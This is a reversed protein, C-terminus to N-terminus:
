KYAMFTAYHNYKWVCEVKSFGTKKLIQLNDEVSSSCLGMKKSMEEWQKDMEGLDMEEGKINRFQNQLFERHIAFYRNKIEPYDSEVGTSYIIGGRDNLIGFLQKFFSERNSPKLYHLALSSVTTDFSHGIDAFRNEKNIDKEMFKLNNKYESLRREANILMEKSGDLCVIEANTFRELAKITLAGLGSGIDLLKINDKELPIMKIIIDLMEDKKPIVVRQMEDFEEVQEKTWYSLIGKDIEKEM